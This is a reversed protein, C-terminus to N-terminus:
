YWENRDGLFEDIKDRIEKDAGFAFEETTMTDLIERILKLLEKAEELRRNYILGTDTNM